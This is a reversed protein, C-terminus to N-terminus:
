STTTTSAPWLRGFVMLADLADQWRGITWDTLAQWGQEGQTATTYDQLRQEVGMVDQPAPSLPQLRQEDPVYEKHLTVLGSLDATM